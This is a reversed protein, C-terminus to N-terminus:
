SSKELANKVVFDILKAASEKVFPFVRNFYIYYILMSWYVEYGGRAFEEETPFYTLCANTYGNLYFFEDQLKEQVSIAFGEMLEYSVGCLCLAGIKFYQVEAWEEQQGIECENLHKVEELWKTGDIGCNEKAEKAIREAEEYEPVNACLLLNRSYMRVSVDKKVELCDIVPVTKKLVEGAMDKLGTQSRVYLKGRADVPTEESQFYKPAINGASGQIVMVPCHYQEKLLKRIEGFYDPSIMYNDSKLVNCHATVRLLLLETVGTRANCVKIIGARKDLADTGQRRNVGIDVTANGYGACVECLKKGAAQVATKVKNCVEKYYETEIAVNPASHCHSFCVMVKERAIELERCISERLNDCLDQKFGLNDITILCCLEEEKWVTVQALLPQLIGRSMNDARSFGVMEVPVLPTIDAEAYGMKLM